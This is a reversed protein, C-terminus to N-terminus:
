YASNKSLGLNMGSHEEVGKDRTNEKLVLKEDFCNNFICDSHKLGKM